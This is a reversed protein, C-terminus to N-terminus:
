GCGFVFGFNTLYQRVLYGHNHIACLGPVADVGPQVEMASKSELSELPFGGASVPPGSNSMLGIPPDHAPTYTAIEDDLNQM